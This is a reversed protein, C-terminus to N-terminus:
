LSWVTTFFYAFGMSNQFSFSCEKQKHYNQTYKACHFTTILSYIHFKTLLMGMGEQLGDGEDDDEDLSDDSLNKDCWVSFEEDEVLKIVEEASFDRDVRKNKVSSQSQTEGDAM